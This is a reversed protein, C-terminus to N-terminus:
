RRRCQEDNLRHELIKIKEDGAIDANRFILASQHYTPKWPPAPIAVQRYGVM